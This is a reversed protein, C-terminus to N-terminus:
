THERQAASRAGFAKAHALQWVSTWAAVSSCSAALARM